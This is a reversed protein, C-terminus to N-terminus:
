WNLDIWLPRGRKRGPKVRANKGKVISANKNCMYGHWTVLFGYLLWLQNFTIFYNLTPWSPRTTWLCHQRPHLFLHIQGVWGVRAIQCAPCNFVFWFAHGYLIPYCGLRSVFYNTFYHLHLMPLLSSVLYNGEWTFPREYTSNRWPPWDGKWTWVVQNTKLHQSAVPAKYHMNQSISCFNASCWLVSSTGKVGLSPINYLPSVGSSPWNCLSSLQFRHCYFIFMKVAHLHDTAFHWCNFIVVISFLFHHWVGVKDKAILLINFM